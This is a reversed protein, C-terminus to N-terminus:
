LSNLKSRSYGAYESNPFREITELFMAKANENDELEMYCKGMYYLVVDMKAYSDCYERIKSYKELSEQYKQAQFLNYADVYLADAAKPMVENFLNEYRQKEEDQFEVNKILILEEFAEAYKNERVLIEIEYLKIAAKYYDRENRILEADNKLKEYESELQAYKEKYENNEAEVTEDSPKNNPEGTEEFPLFGSISLLFAILLGVIVGTLYKPVDNTKHSKRRGLDVSASRGMSTLEPKAERKPTFNAPKSVQETTQKKENKKVNKLDKSRKDSISGATGSNIANLYNFAKAGNNEAKAVREFMERAKDYNKLSYYCLGLLNVAEYFGPNQSIAKKLEILAIDENNKKMNELANNYLMISNKVDETINTGIMEIKEFSIPMFNRIEDKPDIM